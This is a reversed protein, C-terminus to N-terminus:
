VWWTRVCVWKHLSTSNTPEPPLVPQLFDAGGKGYDKDNEWGRRQVVSMMLRVELVM